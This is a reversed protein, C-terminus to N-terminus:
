DHFRIINVQYLYIHNDRCGAALFKGDPSYQICEIPELGTEIQTSVVKREALDYVFWKPKSSQCGVAVLSEHHPHMHVCHLKDEFSQSQVISHSLTDWVGLRTDNGCTIFTSPSSSPCLGWLEDSHGQVVSEVHNLDFNIKVFRFSFNLRFLKRFNKFLLFEINFRISQTKLQALSFSVERTLHSADVRAKIKPYLWIEDPKKGIPTGNLWTYTKAVQWSESAKTSCWFLFSAVKMFELFWVIRNQTKWRGCLYIEM